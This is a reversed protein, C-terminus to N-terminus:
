NEVVKASSIKRTNEDQKIFYNIITAFILLGLFM